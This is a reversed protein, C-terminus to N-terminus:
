IILNHIILTQVYKFLSYDYEVCDLIKIDLFSSVFSSILSYNLASAKIISTFNKRFKYNPIKLNQHFILKIFTM